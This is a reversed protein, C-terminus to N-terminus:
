VNKLRSNVQCRYTSIRVAALFPVSCFGLPDLVSIFIESNIFSSVVGCCYLITNWCCNFTPHSCKNMPFIALPHLCHQGSLLDQLDLMACVNMSHPLAHWLWLIYSSSLLFYLIVLSRSFASACTYSSAGTVSDSMRIWRSRHLRFISFRASFESM